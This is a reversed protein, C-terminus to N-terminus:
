DIMKPLLYITGNFDSNRHLITLYGNLKDKYEVLYDPHLKKTVITILRRVLLGVKNDYQTFCTGFMNTSLSFPVELVYLLLDAELKKNKSVETFENIRKVCASLMNALQLQESFGKYRKRFLSDIDRMAEEYLDKEGKDKDLYNVLLFNYNAKKAALKVIIDILDTKPLSILQEKIESKRNAM